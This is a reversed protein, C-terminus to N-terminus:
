KAPAMKVLLQALRTWADEVVGEFRDDQVVCM